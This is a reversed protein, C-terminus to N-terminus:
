LSIEANRDPRYYGGGNFGESHWPAGEAEKADDRAREAVRDIAEDGLVAILPKAILLITQHNSWLLPM